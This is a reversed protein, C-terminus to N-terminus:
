DDQGLQALYRSCEQEFAGFTLPISCAGAEYDWVNMVDDAQFDTGNPIAGVEIYAGGRWAFRLGHDEADATMTAITLPGDSRDAHM